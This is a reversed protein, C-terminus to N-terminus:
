QEFLELIKQGQEGAKIRWEALMQQRIKELGQKIDNSPELVKIGHQALIKIKEMTEQESMQWGRKEAVAAATAVADQWETPLENFIRQNVIVMNKPVWAQLDYYHTVYDWAQSSVGTSPSTIMADIIGTSFAQPIEPTQVTTPSGGMLEVLRSLIPNYTRIKLREFDKSSLMEKKTYLGQPPWPVSFLLKLGQEALLKEIEDRSIQWLKKADAYSTALLPLSDIEFLPNENGLLSIVMEGIPVQGSRIAQKIEPHKYLSAHSHVQIVLQGKTLHSVEKSFERVNITHFVTEEFPTPMDWVVTKDPTGDCGVLFLTACVILTLFKKMSSVQKIINQHDHHIFVKNDLSV